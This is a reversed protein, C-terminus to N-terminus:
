DIQSDPCELEKMLQEYESENPSRRHWAYHNEVFTKCGYGKVDNAIIVKVKNNKKSIEKKLKDVNHGDLEAVECDFAEFKKGPNPIQLGRLESNNNDYIITLNDLKLSAAVMVAEWVTGENAEGDGILVFVRRDNKKLKSALAIGTAIGIGHGLSGTSAEIGPVSMRNAHCGLDSMYKGFTYLKDIEFYGAKALICYHGLSAHGKSLIFIDREDWSPNKPDHKITSYVAYIIEIVSFCSPIHGHGTEKSIKLIDKRIEKCVKEM